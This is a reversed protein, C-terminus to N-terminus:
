PKQKGLDQSVGEPTLLPIICDACADGKKDDKM